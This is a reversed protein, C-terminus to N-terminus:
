LLVFSCHHYTNKENSPWPLGTQCFFAPLSVHQGPEGREGRAGRRGPNGTLGQPICLKSGNIICCKYLEYLVCVCIYIYIYIYLLSVM